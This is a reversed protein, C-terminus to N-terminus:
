KGYGESYWGGGKLVFNSRSILKETQTDPCVPCKPNQDNVKQSREFTHGCKPCKFDYLPM